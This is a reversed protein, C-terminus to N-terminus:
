KSIASIVENWKCFKRKLYITANGYLYEFIHFMDKRASCVMYKMDESKSDRYSYNGPVYNEIHKLFSKTGILSFHPSAYKYVKIREDKTKYYSTSVGLAITGDGDFYGRIFHRILNKQISPM